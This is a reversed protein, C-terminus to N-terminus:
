GGKTGLTLTAAFLGVVTIASATVIIWGIKRIKTGPELAVCAGAPTLTQGEPCSEAQGLSKSARSKCGICTKTRPQGLGGLEGFTGM